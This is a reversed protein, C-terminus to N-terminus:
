QAAPASDLRAANGLGAARLDPRGGLMGLTAGACVVAAALLTAPPGLVAAVAGM